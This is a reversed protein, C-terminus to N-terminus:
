FVSPEDIVTALARLQAGVIESQSAIREADTLRLRMEMLGSNADKLAQNAALEWDEKQTAKWIASYVAQSVGTPEIIAAYSEPTNSAYIGVDSWMLSNTLIGSVEGKAREPYKAWDVQSLRSRISTVFQGARDERRFPIARDKMQRTLVEETHAIAQKLQSYVEIHLESMLLPTIAIDPKIGSAWSMPQDMMREM